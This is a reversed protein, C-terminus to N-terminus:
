RYGYPKYEYGTAGRYYDEAGGWSSRKLKERENDRDRLSDYLRPDDHDHGLDHYRRRDEIIDGPLTSATSTYYYDGDSVGQYRSSGGHGLLDSESHRYDGGAHGGRSPSPSRRYTTAPRQSNSTGTRPYYPDQSYAESTRPGMTTPGDRPGAGASMSNAHRHSPTGPEEYVKGGGPQATYPKRQREIPRSPAETDDDDDVVASSSTSHYPQREREGVSPTSDVSSVSAKHAAERHRQAAAQKLEEKTIPPLDVACHKIIHQDIEERLSLNPTDPFLRRPIEKPFRESRKDPNSIPMNLVAKQFREYEKEPHAQIMLTAWREFGRPTLGPTDPRESLREQVLHHEAELERFLRSISSTQDDFIDQWPYLDSSVSTDEYFKQLKGPVVVLTNGPPYDEILHVAVGRLFQGLRETPKGDEFLKGWIKELTTMETVTDERSPPKPRSEMNQSQHSLQSAPSGHREASQGLSSGPFLHPSSPHVPPPVPAQYDTEGPPIKPPPPPTNQPRVPSHMPEGYTSGPPAWQPPPQSSPVQDNQLNDLGTAKLQQIVTATIQSVVEPSLYDPKDAQHFASNVAENIRGTHPQQQQQQWPASEYSPKPYYGAPSSSTPPAQPQPMNIQEPGYQSPYPPTYSSARNENPNVHNMTGFQSYPPSNPFGNYAM